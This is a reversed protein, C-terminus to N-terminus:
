VVVEILSPGGSTLGGTLARAFDESYEVRTGPIGHGKALSVWDLTPDEIDFMAQANRALAKLM